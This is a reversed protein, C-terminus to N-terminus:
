LSVSWLVVGITLVVLSRSLWLSQNLQISLGAGIAAWLSHFLCQAGAFSLPVILMQASWEGLHPAFETWALITMVWAKPNLPHVILGALIGAPQVAKELSANDRPHWNLSALYIMFAASVYKLVTQLTEYEILIWGLGLGMALNLLFKGGILGANFPMAALFGHRAGVSMILLNAPGPTGVMAAIFVWLALLSGTDTLM